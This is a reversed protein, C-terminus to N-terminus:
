HFEFWFVCKEKLFICKCIDDAFNRGGIEYVIVYEINNFFFMMEYM